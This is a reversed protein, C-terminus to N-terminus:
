ADVGAFDNKEQILIWYGLVFRVFVIHKLENWILDRRRLVEVLKLIRYPTFDNLYPFNKSVELFKKSVVRLDTGARVGVKAIVREVSDDALKQMSLRLCLVRFWLTLASVFQRGELVTSTSIAQHPFHQLWLNFPPHRHRHNNINTIM